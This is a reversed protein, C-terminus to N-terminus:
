EMPWSQNVAFSFRRSALGLLRCDRKTNGSEKVGTPSNTRRERERIPRAVLRLGEPRRNPGVLEEVFVTAFFGKTEDSRLLKVQTFAVVALIQM